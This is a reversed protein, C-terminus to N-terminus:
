QKFLDRWKRKLARLATKRLMSRVEKDQIALELAANFKDNQKLADINDLTSSLADWDEIIFANLAEIIVDSFQVQMLQEELEANIFDIIEQKTSQAYIISLM